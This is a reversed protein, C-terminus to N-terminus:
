GYLESNFYMLSKIEIIENIISDDYNNDIRM